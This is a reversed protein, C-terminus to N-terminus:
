FWIHFYAVIGSAVIWAVVLGGITAGEPLV